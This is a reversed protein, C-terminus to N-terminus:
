SLQRRLRFVRPFGDLARCTTTNDETPETSRPPAVTAGPVSPQGKHPGPPRMEQEGTAKKVSTSGGLASM